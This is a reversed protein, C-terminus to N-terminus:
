KKKRRIIVGAAVGGVALLAVAALVAILAGNGGSKGSDSTENASTGAGESTATSNQSDASSVAPTESSENPEETTTSEESATSEESTTPEETSNPDESTIPESSTGTENGTYLYTVTTNKSVTLTQEESTLERGDLKKAPVLLKAGEAATLKYSDLLKGGATKCEVTVTVEQKHDYRALLYAGVCAAWRQHGAESQHIGDGAAYFNSPSEAKAESDMDILGCNYQLALQRIAQCYSEANGYSYDLGYGGPTYYGTGAYPQQPVILIVDTGEAQLRTIIKTMNSIYGELPIIASNQALVQAQDNMGFCVFAVDPKKSLVDAEFRQLGDYTNNGGVGANIVETGITGCLMSVWGVRATLSDGFALVTKDRLSCNLAEQSVCTLKGVAAISSKASSTGDAAVMVTYSYGAKLTGAPIELSTGRVIRPTIAFDHLSNPVAANISVTYSSAGKVADWRLTYKGESCTIAGNANTDKLVPTALQSSKEGGVVYQTKGNLPQNLVVQYADGDAYLYAPTGETCATVAAAAESYCDMVVFGNEPIVPSKGAGNGASHDTAVCVYCSRSSDWCFILAQWWAFDYTGRAYAGFSPFFINCDGTEYHTSDTHNTRIIQQAGAASGGVSSAAALPLLMTLAGLFAALVRSARRTTMSKKM